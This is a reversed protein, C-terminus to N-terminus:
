KNKRLLYLLTNNKTQLDKEDRVTELIKTVEERDQKELYFTLPVQNTLDSASYGVQAEEIKVDSFSTDFPTFQVEQTKFGAVDIGQLKELELQLIKDEWVTLEGVKNDALRYANINIENDTYIKCPVEDIGLKKAALLRTHGAVIVNNEDIVIAQQFGHKHLSKAVEEIASESIVRPNQFYPVIDETKKYLIDM